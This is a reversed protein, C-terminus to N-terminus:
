AHVMFVYVASCLVLWLSAVFLITVTNFKRSFQKAEKGFSDYSRTHYTASKERAEPSILSQIRKLLLAPAEPTRPGLTSYGLAAALTFCIMQIFMSAGFATAAGFGAFPPIGKISETLKAFLNIELAIIVGIWGLIQRALGRYGEVRHVADDFTTQLNSLWVEATAPDSLTYKHLKISAPM